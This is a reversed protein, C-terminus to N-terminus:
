PGVPQCFPLFGLSRHSWLLLYGPSFPSLLFSVARRVENQHCLRAILQALPNSVLQSLKSSVLSSIHVSPPPPPFQSVAAPRSLLPATPPGTHHSLFAAQHEPFTLVPSLLRLFLVCLLPFALSFSSLSVVSFRSFIFPCHIRGSIPTSSRSRHLRPDLSYPM